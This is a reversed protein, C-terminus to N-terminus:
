SSSPSFTCRRYVHKFTLTLPIPQTTFCLYFMSKGLLHANDIGFTNEDKSFHFWLPRVPPMGNNLNEYFLTYWYPLYSYRARIANRVNHRTEEHFLYPERLRSHLHAHARFFPQFAGAQYWRIILEDSEPDFFFGPVDAGSFSIGTVSLSLIMPITMKLHDWKAMNDGTWVACHKQSGAFFARTLIFSRLNPRHEFLGTFTSKTFLYGYINHIDRHELGGFHVLDKPATVDPGNFISPENMDNWIDVVGNAFGPFFEPNFKSAWWDRTAPNLFDPWMSAGPWCWGEYDRDERTKIFYGNQVAENYVPYNTDKKVHPDIIAILRRGKATLNAILEQRDNFGSDWTFYKKSRDLFILVM